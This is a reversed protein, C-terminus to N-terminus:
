ILTKLHAALVDSMPTPRGTTRDVCVSRTMAMAAVQGDAFLGYGLTLSTRGVALPAVEVIVDGPYTLSKRYRVTIEAIPWSVGTVEAFDAVLTNRFAIRCEELYPLYNAHNVHGNPDLDSYRVSTTLRFRQDAPVAFRDLDYVPVGTM